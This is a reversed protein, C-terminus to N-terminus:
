KAIANQLEDLHRRVRQEAKELCDRELELRAYDILEQDAKSAPAALENTPKKLDQFECNPPPPSKLLHNPVERFKHEDVKAVQVDTQWTHDNYASEALREANATYYAASSESVICGCGALSSASM